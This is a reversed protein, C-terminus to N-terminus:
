KTQFAKVIPGLKSNEKLFKDYVPKVAKQFSSLNEVKNWKIKGRAMINKLCQADADIGVKTYDVGMTTAVEQIAKQQAANLKKWTKMSIVVNDSSMFMPIETLYKQVEDFKREDIAVYENMQGEVVGSQLATYLEPYPIPTASAGLAIMTDMQIPNQQTRMRLKKFDDATTIPRQNNTVYRFSLLSASLLKMGSKDASAFVQKAVPSKWFKNYAEFSTVLLPLSFAKFEPIFNALVGETVNQMDVNGLKLAELAEREGGLQSSWFVQVKVTGQTKEDAMQVWKKFWPALSSTEDVVTSFKLTIPGTKAKPAQAYAAVAFSLLLVLAFLLTKKFM